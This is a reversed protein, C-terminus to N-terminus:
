GKVYNVHFIVYGVIILAIAIIAMNRTVDPALQDLGSPQGGGVAPQLATAGFFASAPYGTKPYQATDSSYGTFANGLGNM